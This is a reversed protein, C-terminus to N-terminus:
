IEDVTFDTWDKYIDKNVHDLSAKINTLKKCDNFRTTYKGRRRGSIKKEEVTVKRLFNVELLEVPHWSPELKHEELWKLKTGDETTPTEETKNKGHRYM